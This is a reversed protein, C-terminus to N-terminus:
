RPACTHPPRHPWFDAWSRRAHVAGADVLQRQVATCLSCLCYMVVTYYLIMACYVIRGYVGVTCHVAGFFFLYKAFSLSLCLCLCFTASQFTGVKRVNILDEAIDKEGQYLEYIAQVCWVALSDWATSVAHVHWSLRCQFVTWGKSVRSDTFGSNGQRELHWQCLILSLSLCVLGAHGGTVQLGIHYGSMGYLSRHQINVPWMM